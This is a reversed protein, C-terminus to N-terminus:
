WKDFLKGGGKKTGRPQSVKPEGLAGESIKKIDKGKCCFINSQGNTDRGSSGLKSYNGKRKGGYFKLRIPRDLWFCREREVHLAVGEKEGGCVGLYCSPGLVTVTSIKFLEVFFRESEEGGRPDRKCCWGGV